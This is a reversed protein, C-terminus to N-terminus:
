LEKVAQAILSADGYMEFDKSIHNIAFAVIQSKKVKVKDEYPMMARLGDYLEELSNLTDIPLYHTVRAKDIESEDKKPRGRGRKKPAEDVVDRVPTKDADVNLNRLVAEMDQESRSETISLPKRKNSM